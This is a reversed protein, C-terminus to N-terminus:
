RVLSGRGALCAVRARDYEARRQESVAAEQAAWEQQAQEERQIQKKRRIGGILLSSGARIVAGSVPNGRIITGLITGRAAGKAM